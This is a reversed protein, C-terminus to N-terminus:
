RLDLCKLSRSGRVYLLGNSLAPLARAEDDLVEATALTKLGAKEVEALILEGSLKLIILKGDALIMTASGFNPVTWLVKGRDLPDFCRLQMPDLREQGDLGVILKDVVVSTAYHSSVVNDSAWVPEAEDDTLKTFVAGVGYNSSVFLYDGLLTPSSANVTPGTKGFPFEFRIKGTAPDLSVVKLRTIFIVHKKGDVEAVVPSSYSALEDTAKWLTRGNKLDLAVIGADQRAGGVNVLLKDDVIIPSSGAGFYGEPAEYDAFLDRSWVKKGTAAEVAHMRGAAGFLYVNGGQVLPVCRPGDDPSFSGVYNTPFAAKWVEQGTQADLCECVEETGVRHFLFVRGDAVAVGAYGRGVPRQWLTPPGAEPWKDALDEKEAIGDRHPGLIQPWDGALVSMPLLLLGFVAALASKLM